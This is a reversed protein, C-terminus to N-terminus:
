EAPAVDAMALAHAIFDGDPQTPATPAPTKGDGFESVFDEATLLQNSALPQLDTVSSAIKALRDPSELYAVEARLTQIESLEKAKTHNLAHIDRRAERVSVEVRYRGWAAAALLLCLLIM